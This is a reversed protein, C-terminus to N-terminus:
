LYMMRFVRSFQVSLNIRCPAPVPRFKMNCKRGAMSSSVIPRLLTGPFLGRQRQTTLARFLQFM